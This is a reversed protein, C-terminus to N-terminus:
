PGGIVVPGGDAILVVNRSITVAENYSGPKIKIHAGNWAFGNAGGITRFPQAPTGQEAGTYNRDVRITGGILLWREILPYTVNFRGYDSNVPNPDGPCRRFDGWLQGIIRHDSDFLPSGSSGPETAGDTWTTRWYNANLQVVTGGSFRKFTGAPHHIGFAGNGDGPHATSWGSYTLAPTIEGRIRLFAHDNGAAQTQVSILDAGGTTRPVDVANPVTGDCRNTQFLWYFELTNANAQTALVNTVGGNLCHNATLFYGVFTEDDYDNILAGSCFLVGAAGVAGLGAVATADGRWAARCNVDVHCGLIQQTEQWASPDIYTHSIEAITAQAATTAAPPTYLVVTVVSSFISATWLETEGYLDKTQYPGVQRQPHQSDYVVIWAGAPLSVGTLHVRIAKAEPSEITVSWVTGGDAASQLSGASAVEGGLGVPVPLPRVVGIRRASAMEQQQSIDERLLPAVDLPPLTVDVVAPGASAAFAPMIAELNVGGPEGPTEPKLAANNFVVPPEPPADQALSVPLSQQVFATVLLLVCVLTRATRSIHM